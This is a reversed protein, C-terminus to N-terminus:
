EWRASWHIAHLNWLINNHSPSSAGEGRRLFIFTWPTVPLLSPPHV